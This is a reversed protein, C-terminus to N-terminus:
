DAREDFYELVAPWDVCRTVGAPLSDVQNWPYDGFLIVQLGAAAAETATNNNDDILYSAGNAFCVQSKPIKLNTGTGYDTFHVAGFVGPFHAALWAHTVDQFFDQRSTIVIIDFREQLRALVDVAHQLPEIDHAGESEVFRQLKERIVEDPDGTYDSLFYRAEPGGVPFDTGYVQNHHALIINRLPSLVEDIDVAITSRSM